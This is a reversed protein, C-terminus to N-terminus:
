KVEKWREPLSAPRWAANPKWNIWSGDLPYRREHIRAFVDQKACEIGEVWEERICGQRVGDRFDDEDKWEWTFTPDVVLDLELDLTDFGCHSRRYPLQFSVYYCLFRNAAHEWFYWTSYYAQPELFMLVRNTQWDFERLTWANSRADDWRTPQSHDDRRWSWYGDPYACQAGPTLLLITEDDADKVVTVAQALWVRGNYIGRLAVSDGINWMM